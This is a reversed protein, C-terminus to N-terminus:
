PIDSNVSNGPLIASGNDKIIISNNHSSYMQNDSYFFGNEVIELTGYLMLDPCNSYQGAVTLKVNEPIIITTNWSNVTMGEPITLSESITFTSQNRLDFYSDGRAIAAKLEEFLDGSIDSPTAADDAFALTTKGASLLLLITVALLISKFHKAIRSNM